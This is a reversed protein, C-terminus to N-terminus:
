DVVELVGQSREVADKLPGSEDLRIGVRDERCRDQEDDMHGTSWWGRLVTADGDDGQDFADMIDDLVGPAM